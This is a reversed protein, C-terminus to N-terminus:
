SHRSANSKGKKHKARSSKSTIGASCLHSRIAGPDITNTNPVAPVQGNHERAIKQSWAILIAEARGEHKKLPCNADPFYRLTLRRSHEKDFGSLGLRKKWSVPATETVTFHRFSKLFLPWMGYAVGVKYGTYANNSQHKSVMVQAVEINVIVNAYRLLLEFIQIIEDHLFVTKTKKRSKTAGHRNQKESPIDLSFASDGCVFGIAGTAGPDVGVYITNNAVDQLKLWDFLRTSAPVTANKIM